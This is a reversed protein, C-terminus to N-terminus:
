GGFILISVEQEMALTKRGLKPLDDAPNYGNGVQSNTTIMPEPNKQGYIRNSTNDLPKNSIIPVEFNCAKKPIHERVM